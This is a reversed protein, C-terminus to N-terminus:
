VFYNVQTFINPLYDIFNDHKIKIENILSYDIFEFEIIDEKKFTTLNSVKEYSKEVEKLTLKEIEITHDNNYSNLNYLAVLLQQLLFHNSFYLLINSTLVIICAKGVFLSSFRLIPAKDPSKM